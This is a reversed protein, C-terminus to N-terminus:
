CCARATVRLVCVCKHWGPRAAILGARGTRGCGLAVRWVGGGGCAVVAFGLRGPTVAAGARGQTYQRVQAGATNSDM